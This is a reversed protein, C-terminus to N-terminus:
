SFVLRKIDNFTVVVILLLVAFVGARALWERTRMSLASGKVGEILTLIIQGGDLVPIPVLNLIAINISLFAILSWLVEAGGEAARVSTRAIEIPGGLNSVAVEATFLGRLVDVVRTTMMWTTEVGGSLAESVAVSRYAVTDRVAIGVRGVPGREGTIPNIGEALEPAVTLSRRGSAGGVELALTGSTVPAIATIVATWDDMAEGGVRLLTDGPLVGAAAAPGGVTVSDVVPPVYPRGYALHVGSSVVIALAINALVGASMIFVRAWTAKSELWRDRPVARPGFPALGDDSWLAGAAARAEAADADTPAADEGGAGFHGRDAAGEIGAMSEDDRSAMRVYGGIPFLSLRYDTEGRKFGWIRRGWGLSFVPAYVGVLKAAVFHGLEHVFVVLGFVFLPAAIAGLTDLM